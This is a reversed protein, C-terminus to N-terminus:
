RTAGLLWAALLGCAALAEVTAIQKIPWGPLARRWRRAGILGILADVGLALGIWLPWTRM